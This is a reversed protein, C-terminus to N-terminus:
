LFGKVERLSAWSFSMGELGNHGMFRSASNLPVATRGQIPDWRLGGQPGAPRPPFGRREEWTSLVQHCQASSCVEAGQTQQGPGEVRPRPAAKTVREM